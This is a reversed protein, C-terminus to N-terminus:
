SAIFDQKIPINIQHQIFKKLSVSIFKVPIKNTAQTMTQAMVIADM